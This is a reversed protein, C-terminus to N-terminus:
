LGYRAKVARLEVGARRIAETNFWAAERAVITMTEARHRHVERAVNPGWLPKVPFRRSTTRTFLIGGGYSAGKGSAFMFSHRATQGRAWAKHRGGPWARRWAAAFDVKTIRLHRGQVRAGASMKGPSAIVPRVREAIEKRRLIGTWQRLNRTLDTRVRQGARNLSQALIIDARKYGTGADVLARRLNALQRTDIRVEVSM